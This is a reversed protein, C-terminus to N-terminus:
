ATAKRGLLGQPRVLLVIVLPIFLISYSVAPFYATGYTDALAIIVSGLIAGGYSGLGGIVVVALALLLITTDNGTALGVIPVGLVGAFGALAAGLIFVGTFVIRVNIGLASVMDRDDVGARIIAGVRTRRLLVFLAVAVAVSVGLIFFRGNPYAIDGYPLVTSNNLVGPLSINLPNGGWIALAVDDIVYVLGLTALLEAMESHRLPPLLVREIVLGLAGMAITGAALGWFFNHLDAIVSYAVYGGLLFIAGHALSTVRMVGFILTFGSSVLFVVGALTLGNITQVVFETM